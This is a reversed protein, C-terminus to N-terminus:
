SQWTLRLTPLYQLEKQYPPMCFDVFLFGASDGVLPQAVLSASDRGTGVLTFVLYGGSAYELYTNLLTSNPFTVITQQNYCVTSKISYESGIDITSLCEYIPLRGSWFRLCWHWSGTNVLHGRQCRVQCHKAIIFCCRALRVGIGCMDTNGIISSTACSPSSPQDPGYKQLQWIAIALPVLLFITTKIVLQLYM